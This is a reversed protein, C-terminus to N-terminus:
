FLTGFNFKIGINKTESRPETVFVFSTSNQTQKTNSRGFKWAEFFIGFGYYTNNIHQHTWRANLRAGTGDGIDLTTTGLDIKSLDVYITANRIFLYSAALNIHDKATVPIDSNLGISYELWKYTEDLGSINNNDQINRQWQHSQAGIFLHMNEIISREVSAGLRILEMETDTTHPIGTQTQGDYDVTGQYYSSYINILWDPTLTHKLKAEVGTLWGLERDLVQDTTSFETYDFHLLSPSLSLQTNLEDIAYCNGTILYLFLILSKNM